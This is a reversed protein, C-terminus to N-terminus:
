GEDIAPGFYWGTLYSWPPHTTCTLSDNFWFVVNSASAYATLLTSLVGRCSEPTVNNGAASVNCLYAWSLGAGTSGIVVNGSPDVSLQNIKGQCTYNAFAPSCALLLISTAIVTRGIDTRTRRDM